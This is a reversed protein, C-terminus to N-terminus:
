KIIKSGWCMPEHDHPYIQKSRQYYAILPTSKKNKRTLGKEMGCLICKCKKEWSGLVFKWEGEKYIHKIKPM